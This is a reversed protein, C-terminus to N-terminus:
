PANAGFYALALLGLAICSLALLLTWRQPQLALETSSTARGALAAAV